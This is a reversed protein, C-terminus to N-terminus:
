GEEDDATGGSVSPSPEVQRWGTYRLLARQDARLGVAGKMMSRRWRGEDDDRRMM